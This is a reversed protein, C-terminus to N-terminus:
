ILSETVTELREVSAVLVSTKPSNVKHGISEVLGVHNEVDLILPHSNTSRDSFEFNISSLVQQLCIHKKLQISCSGDTFINSPLHEAVAPPVDFVFCNLGIRRSMRLNLAFVM